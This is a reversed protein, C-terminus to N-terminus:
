LESYFSKESYFGSLSIEAARPNTRQYIVLPYKLFKVPSVSVLLDHGGPNSAFAFPYMAVGILQQINFTIISVSELERPSM